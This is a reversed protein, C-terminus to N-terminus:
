AGKRGSRWVSMARTMGAREFVKELREGGAGLRATALLYEGESLVREHMYRLFAQIVGVGYVYHVNWVTADQFLDLEHLRIGYLFGRTDGAESEAVLFVHNAGDRKVGRFMSAVLRESGVPRSGAFHEMMARIVAADKSKKAPRVLIKM